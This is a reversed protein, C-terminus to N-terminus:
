EIVVSNAFGSSGDNSIDAWNHPIEDDEYYTRRVGLFDQFGLSKVGPASFTFRVNFLDGSVGYLKPGQIPAINFDWRVRGDGLDTPQYFTDPPVLMTTEPPEGAWVGDLAVTAGGPAGINFSDPVYSADKPTILGVGTMFQFANPLPGTKVTVLIPDAIRATRVEPVAYLTDFELIPGSSPEIEIANSVIESDGGALHGWDYTQAGDCYYTRQVGDADSFGFTKRGPTTFVFRANFIAGSAGATLARGPTSVYFDWRRRGAPLSAPIVTSDPQTFFGDPQVQEWIGDLDTAAGGLGGFNLSGPVYVGDAEVTLGCRGLAQFPHATPGTAIIVTVAQGAEQREMTPIAYLTDVPLALPGICNSASGTGTGDLPRVWFFTGAAPTLSPSAFRLRETQPNGAGANLSISVPPATTSASPYDWAKQSCELQYGTVRVGYNQAIPKIDASNIEGNGDGDVVAEISDPAFPGAAHLLRSLATLDAINVEGNQDYDGQSNFGWEVRRRAENWVACTASATEQVGSSSSRAVAPGPAFHIRALATAGTFGRGASTLVQGIDVRGPAAYDALELRQAVPAIGPLHEVAAVHWRTEDYSVTLYVARAATATCAIELTLPQGSAVAEAASINGLGAMADAWVQVQVNGATIVASTMLGDPETTSHGCSTVGCITLGWLVGFRRWDRLVM